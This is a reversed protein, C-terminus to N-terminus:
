INSAVDYSAMQSLVPPNLVRETVHLIGNSELFSSEFHTPHRPPCSRDPELLRCRPRPVAVDLPPVDFSGRRPGDLQCPGPLSARNYWM